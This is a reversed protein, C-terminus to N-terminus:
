ATPTSQGQQAKRLGYRDAKLQTIDEDLAVSRTSMANSAYLAEKSFSAANRTASLSTLSATVGAIYANGSAAAMGGMQSVLRDVNDWQGHAAADRAERQLRAAELEQSRAAVTADETADEQGVLLTTHHTETQVNGKADRYRVTAALEVAQGAALEPLELQAMGWSISEAALDGLRAGLEGEGRANIWSVSVPQDGVSAQLKVEIQRALTAEMLRFESDFYGALQRADEAYFAQGGGNHGMQTMLDENFSPGLGYTSTIVGQSMLQASQSALQATDQIGVNAKGDSLLLVRSMVENGVHPAVQQAGHLWGGHLNTGGGLVGLCAIQARAAERNISVPASQALISVESAYGIVALRDTPLLRDIFTIAAAKAQELPFGSMSPSADIVLAVNLPLRQTGSPLPGGALSAMVPLTRAIGAKLASHLPTLTAKM